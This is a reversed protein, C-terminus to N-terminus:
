GFVRRREFRGLFYLGLAVADVVNHAISRAIGIGEEYPVREEVFLRSEVRGRIIENEKGKPITGKWAHPVVHQVQAVPFRAALAGGIGALALLQNPDGKTRGGGRAYIQPQELGLILKEDDLLRSYPAQCSVAWRIVAEAMQACEWPGSGKRAVNKVYACAVLRADGFLAVGCGRIGPDVALLMSM